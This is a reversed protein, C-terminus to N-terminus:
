HGALPIMGGVTGQHALRVIYPTILIVLEKIDKTDQRNTASSLGPLDSLGPVGSIELSELKSMDSVVLASDGQRISVIGSYQRNALIPIGNLSSGALSALKMDLNLSVENGSEVRPTVKLTLGLDEYQIQPTTLNKSSSSSGLGSYSSTMIPYREGSRVTAEEQDLVRLQIQDLSRVDSSNLLMNASVGNFTLGTETLGGGFVAFPNNFVTGTLAGSAILAALIATYNGALSPDSALIENVLSANNSLVSNVESPVNFVTTSTPLIVGVNTAKTKDIEYMRLELHVESKGCLLEAYTENLAELDPAPARISITGKSSDMVSHEAGFVSRAIDRMEILETDSLGPFYVTELVQREFRRRNQQTDAAVLVHLPDLPVFFSNTALKTLDAAEQFDVEDAVFHVPQANVSDDITAQIGYADLVQSLLSRKDTRLDFSHRGKQPELAIPAAAEDNTARVEPAKATADVTLSKLFETVIPSEPDLRMAMEIATWSADKRGSERERKARQVLQAVVCQRAIEASVPYRVNNPDLEHARVFYKEAARPDGKEIARVGALFAKEARHRNWPSVRVPREVTDPAQLAPAQESSALSADVTCVGSQASAPSQAQMVMGAVM